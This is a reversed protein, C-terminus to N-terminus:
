LDEAAIKAYHAVDKDHDNMNEKLKPIITDKL